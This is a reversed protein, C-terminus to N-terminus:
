RRSRTRSPRKTSTARNVRTRNAGSSNQIRSGQNAQVRNRWASGNAGNTTNGNKNWLGSGQQSQAAKWKSWRDTSSSTQGAAANEKWKAWRDASTTGTAGNQSQGAKFKAWRDAASTQNTAASEKRQAWKNQQTQSTATAGAAEPAPPPTRNVEKTGEFSWKGDDGKSLTGNKDVSLTGGKDGTVTKEATLSLSGDANKSVSGDIDTTRSRTQGNPGTATRDVTADWERGSDTKTVSGEVTRDV